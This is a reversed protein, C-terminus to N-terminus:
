PPSPSARRRIRRVCSTAGWRIISQELILRDKTEDDGARELAAFLIREPDDPTVNTQSRMFDIIKLRRSIRQAASIQDFTGFFDEFYVVAM